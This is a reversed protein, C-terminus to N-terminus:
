TLNKTKVKLKEIFRIFDQSEIIELNIEQFPNQNQVKTYELNYNDFIEVISRTRSLHGLGTSDNGFCVILTRM